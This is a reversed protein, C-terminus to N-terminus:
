SASSPRTATPGQAATVEGALRAIENDKLALQATLGDVAAQVSEGELEVGNVKIKMTKEKGDPIEASDLALCVQEGHRGASVIATHNYIVKTRVADYAKGSPTQGDEFRTAAMYGMSVERRTGTEIDRLLGADQIVLDAKLFEGDFSVTGNSAHGDAYQKFTAPTVFEPPHENTVPSDSVTAMAAQLVEPPTFIRVKDSDAFRAPVDMGQRRLYRATYDAVDARALRAPVRSGGQPTKELEGLSGTRDIYYSLADM